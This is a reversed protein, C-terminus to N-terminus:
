VPSSLTTGKLYSYGDCRHVPICSRHSIGQVRGRNTQIDFSGSARVLVRGVYVGQKTGKTVVAKVLDGTQFGKVKREGKPKSCPFGIKTVNCKQRRGHGTAVILLPVVGALHLVEPTSTGVCVADLWHAKALRRRVRNYRTQGGTGTEVPLGLSQLRRSLKWRTANVAAADKLPAKTQALIRQLLAPKDKLFDQIFQTGKADNCPNCALTLNSVRNTGGRKRCVIHEVELPVGTAGCYACQRGWKELLYERVEYGALEGQQYEVGKIEPNEVLQPDFKVLEQSIATIPCFRVLRRAWTLTNAIRSELSPPLWGKPKARNSYRSPRYRTKRGRRSRRVRRRDDLAKKIAEGRHQLEAAWVVEGSADNVIALGTTKSGPDIKLRLGGRQPAPAAEKLIITFPYRRFVAARGHTLLLRARGPHVPDLPHKDTDLVFVKSM